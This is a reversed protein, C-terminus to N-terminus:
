KAFEKMDFYWSRLRFHAAMQSKDICPKDIGWLREAEYIAQSIETIVDESYFISKGDQMKVYYFDGKTDYIIFMSIFPKVWKPVKWKITGCMVPRYGFWSVRAHCWVKQGSKFNKHKM